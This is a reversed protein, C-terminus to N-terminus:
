SNKDLLARLRRIEAEADRRAQAEAKAREEAEERADEEAKAKAEAEERAHAEAKAKAEAAKRAALEAEAETLWLRTGQEDDAIRLCEGNGTTVLWAQLAPSFAPADGAYVREMDVGEEADRRRWIQLVFPGGHEESIPGYLEPDFIWLEEGRLCAIRPPGEVYDKEANHESVVEIAVRPPLHGPQWVRLTSMGEPPAPEILVVDPDVGIRADDPDWRCGLNRAVLADRDRYRYKLVLILLAIIADHLPTDPVDELEMFWRQGEEEPGHRVHIVPASTM